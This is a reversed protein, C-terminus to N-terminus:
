DWKLKYELKTQEEKYEPLYDAHSEFLRDSPAQKSGPKQKNQQKNESEELPQIM